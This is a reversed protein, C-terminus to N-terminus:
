DNDIERLVSEGNNYNIEITDKKVLLEQLINFLVGLDYKSLYIADNENEREQIIRYFGKGDDLFVFGYVDFRNGKDKM